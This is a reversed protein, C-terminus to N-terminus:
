ADPAADVQAALAANVALDLKAARRRRRDDLKTQYWQLGVTEMQADAFLRGTDYIATGDPRKNVNAAYNLGEQAQVSLDNFAM